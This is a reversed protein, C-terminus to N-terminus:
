AWSQVMGDQANGFIILNAQRMRTIVEGSFRLQRAVATSLVDTGSVVYWCSTRKIDDM